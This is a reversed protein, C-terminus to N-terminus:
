SHDAEHEGTRLRARVFGSILGLVGTGLLGIAAKPHERMVLYIYGCVVSLFMIVGATLSGIAYLFERQLEHDRARVVLGPLSPDVKGYQLLQEPSLVVATQKRVM